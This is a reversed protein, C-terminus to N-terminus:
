KQALNVSFYIISFTSSLLISTAIITTAIMCKVKTKPTSDRLQARLERLQARLEQEKNEILQTMETAMNNRSQQLDIMQLNRSQNRHQNLHQPATYRIQENQEVQTEPEDINKQQKYLEAKLEDIEAKLEDIEAKSSYKLLKITRRKQQAQTELKYMKARLKNIQKKHKSIQKNLYKRVDFSEACELQEIELGKDNQQLEAVTRAEIGSNGEDFAEAM